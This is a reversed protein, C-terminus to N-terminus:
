SVCPAMRMQDLGLAFISIVDLELTIVLGDSNGVAGGFEAV